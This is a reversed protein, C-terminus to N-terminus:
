HNMLNGDPDYGRFSDMGTVLTGNLHTREIAAAVNCDIDLLESAVSAVDEGQSPEHVRVAQCAAAPSEYLGVLAAGLACARYHDKCDSLFHRRDIIVGETQFGREMLDALEANSRM